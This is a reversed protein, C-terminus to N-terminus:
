GSVPRDDLAREFWQVDWYRDFKRGVERFVGISTFGFREHLAVSAPNPLTVGGVVRHLGVGELSTLLADYLRSGLGQGTVAPDLYISTEVSSAYAAKKRFTISCAWGAARGDVDAVLCRHPSKPDFQEFWTRRREEVTFPELDFTIPTELVYHNYIRTLEFLDNEELPRILAAV